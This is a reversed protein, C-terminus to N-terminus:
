GLELSTVGFVGVPNAAPAPGRYMRATEFVPVFGLGSLFDAFASGTDPVDIQIDGEISAALADFLTGAASFDDAFLPGIKFGSECARAVGYGGVAGKRLLALARHPPQLWRRLFAARPAPFFHQDYAIVSSTLEPSVATVARLATRSGNARGSFRRTRYAAQFGMSRYNAQQEPVGDLGVTRSGLHALGADWVAKGLGRGRMDPRCIYLGVFGFAGDYRVAAIGAAMEGEVFAGKFGEPDVAHFADADSLGPNWGEAGAWSVLTRVEAPSLSRIVPETRM